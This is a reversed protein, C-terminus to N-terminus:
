FEHTLIGRAALAERLAGLRPALDPSPESAGTCPPTLTLLRKAARRCVAGNDPSNTM